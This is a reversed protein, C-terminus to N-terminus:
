LEAAFLIRYSGNPQFYVTGPVGSTPSVYVTYSNAETTISASGANGYTITGTTTATPATRMPVPFLWSNGVVQASSGYGYVTPETNVAGTTIRFYRMCMLLETGYDVVEFSSAASGVELQANGIVWTGSTQAGVTFLIEIGTTAAAPISIQTSYNTLTSNVTFTGTSIQTKTPTGITGFTNSTNAYSATWTVNTLLSNSM